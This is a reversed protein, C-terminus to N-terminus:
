DQKLGRPGEEFTEVGKGDLVYRGNGIFRMTVTFWNMKMGAGFTKVSAYSSVQYRDGGLNTLHYADPKDPFQAADPALLEARVFDRAIGYRPDEPPTILTTTPSPAEKKVREILPPVYFLLMLLLGVGIVLLWIVIWTGSRTGQKV